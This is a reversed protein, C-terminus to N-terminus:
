PRKVLTLTVIEVDGITPAPTGFLKRIWAEAAEEANHTAEVLNLNEPISHTIEFAVTMRARVKVSQTPRHPLAQNKDNM